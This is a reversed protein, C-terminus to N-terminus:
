AGESLGEETKCSGSRKFPTRNVDIASIHHYKKDKTSQNNYCPLKLKM